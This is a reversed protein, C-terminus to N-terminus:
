REWEVKVRREPNVARILKCDARHVRVVGDRAIVGALTKGPHAQPKCCLASKLPLPVDVGTGVARFGSPPRPATKRAASKRPSAVPAAVAVAPVASHETLYRKLRSRASATRLLKLWRPSPHPKAAHLVEVVDGNELQYNLPVISGNVRAARYALGIDTHVQFAFDLPTAGEPLEVVDGKPTLVFIRDVYAQVHGDEEDEQDDAARLLRVRQMAQQATGGQKYNWHAAVGFEAEDHMATTRIQVETFIGTPVGPLGTLTTHLSRYGNPKPFAVYDKFRNPVPHGIRHLLGLVVYCDEDREVIVRLAFLDYVATLQSVSKRSMKTFISYPQKERYEVRAIIGNERLFAQLRAATDELFNGYRDRVGRQQEAIRQADTSYVIPFAREELLHKLSYVGLSAALPAFVRLGLRAFYRAERPTLEELHELVVVRDCLFLLMARVDESLRVLMQRVHELSLRRSRTAFQHLLYEGGVIARVPPGFRDEIDVLSQGKGDIVHHLLCAIVTDEDPKLWLLVDFVAMCHELLPVGTWHRRGEYSQRAVELAQRVRPRQLLPHEAASATKVTQM